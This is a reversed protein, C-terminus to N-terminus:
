HLDPLKLTRSLTEATGLAARKQVSTDSTPVLTTKVGWKKELQERLDQSEEEEKKRNNDNPGSRRDARGEPGPQNGRVQQDWLIEAPDEEVVQPDLGARTWINRCM